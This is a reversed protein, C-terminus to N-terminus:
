TLMYDAEFLLSAFNEFRWELNFDTEWGYFHSGSIAHPGHSFLLASTLRLLLKEAPEVGATIGPAFVGRGNVGSSSLNRASINQNMGGSFFINTRTIFPYVSIFGNYSGGVDSRNDTTTEGSLFLFFGGLTLLDTPDFYASVEAMGGLLEINGTRTEEQLTFPNLLTITLDSSGFEVAGSLFLSAQSFVFNADAGAWFINGRSGVDRIEIGYLGMLSAWTNELAEAMAGDGDRFWAGWLSLNELWGFPWTLKFHVLPSRKGEATFDGNPLVAQVELRLPAIGAEDLDAGFGGGLSWNDLLYGSAVVIRRKGIWGHIWEGDGANWHFYAERAFLTSRAEEALDRGNSTWGCRPDPEPESCRPKPEYFSLGRYKLEGSDANLTFGVREKWDVSLGAGVIWSYGVETNEFYLNLPSSAYLGRPGATVSGETNLFHEKINIRNAFYLDFEVNWGAGSGASDAKAYGGAVMLVSVAFTAVISRRNAHAKSKLHHRM